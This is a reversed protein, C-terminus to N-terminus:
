GELPEEHPFMQDPIPGDLVPDDTEAMWKDCKASLDKLVTAYKPEEALNVFEHPDNQVDYLEERPRDPFHKLKELDKGHLAGNPWEERMLPDELNMIEEPILFRKANPDLNRIYHFKKTRVSRVPDYKEHYSREFFVAERPEYEGGTLLSWFSRGQTIEPIPTGTMELFTPLFDVNSILKDIRAGEPITGPMRMLTTIEMGRDYCTSKSRSGVIGHDTTFIFLTNERFGLRDVANMLNGFQSDMYRICAQFRALMDRSRKNDPFDKSIYTREPQDIGYVKGREDRVNLVGGPAWMSAHVEQTGINLYFPKDAGKRSELYEIANKVTNEVYRDQSGQIQYRNDVSNNREHQFGFHATEYGADDLYDVITRVSRPMSWGKNVLGMLGNTHAYQGSMAAGRSPSCPTSACFVHDFIVGEAAFRNLNPTDIPVDYAGVHKGIDHVIFYIINPRTDRKKGTEVRDAEMSRKKSSEHGAM